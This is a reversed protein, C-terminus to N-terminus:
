RATPRTPRGVAAPSNRRARRRSGSNLRASNRSTVERRSSSPSWAPTSPGNIRPSRSSRGSSCGDPPGGRSDLRRSPPPVPGREILPAAASRGAPEDSPWLELERAIRELRQEMSVGAAQLSHTRRIDAAARAGVARSAAQDAFVRRMMAAAHEVDPEAWVGNPPYQPGDGGVQVLRFGVLYSNAENQFELNGSYATAITPKGLFMAEGAADSVRPETSRCTATPVPSWQTRTRRCVYRDIVCIDPHGAVAAMLERHAARHQTHNICKVVLSAGNGPAFSRRFAEIAALPNKRRLSSAYDFMTLFVYGDPLGLAARSAPPPPTVAVPFTMTRIPVDIAPRLTTAIHESATWVENVLRFNPRWNFPTPGEVEWWWYGISYRDLFFREGLSHAWHGMWDPNACTITIPFAVGGAAATEFAHGHRCDPRVTSELPLVPIRREDLAAVLLRGAEGTGLEARLFSLVNVGVDPAAGERAGPHAPRLASVGEAGAADARRHDLVAGPRLCAAMRCIGCRGSRSGPIRQALNPDREYLEYLYRNVGFRGGAPAPERLQTILERDRDSLTVVTKNSVPM